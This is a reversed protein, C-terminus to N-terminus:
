GTKKITMLLATFICIGDGEVKMFNFRAKKLRKIVGIIKGLEDTLIDFSEHSESWQIEEEKKEIKNAGSKAISM